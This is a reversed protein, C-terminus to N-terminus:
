GAGRTLYPGGAELVARIRSLLEAAVFPKALFHVDTTALGYFRCLEAGALGSVFVACLEPDAQILNRVLQCGDRGPLAIDTLVIDVKGKYNSHIVVAERYDKGELVEYGANELIGRMMRRQSVEDDVLLVTIGKRFM